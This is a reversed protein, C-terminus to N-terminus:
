EENSRLWWDPLPVMDVTQGALHHASDDLFQWQGDRLFSHCNGRPQTCPDSHVLMKEAGPPVYEGEKPAIVSGDLCLYGVLHSREECNAPCATYTHKCLHVSFHVLLSPAFTPKELDGNWDWTIGRNLRFDPGRGNDESEITFPHLSDCGPCWVWVQKGPSYGTLTVLNAVPSM